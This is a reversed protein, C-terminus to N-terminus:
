VHFFEVYAYESMQMNKPKTRVTWFKIFSIFIAELFCSICQRLKSCIQRFFLHKFVDIVNNKLFMIM